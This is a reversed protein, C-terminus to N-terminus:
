ASAILLPWPTAKSWVSVVPARAMDKTRKSRMRAVTARRGLTVSKVTYPVAREEEREKKTWWREETEAEIRKWLETAIWPAAISRDRLMEAPAGIRVTTQRM